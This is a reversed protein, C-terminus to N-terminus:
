RTYVFTHKWESFTVLNNTTLSKQVDIFRQNSSGKFPLDLNREQLIFRGDVLVDLQSLFAKQEPSGTSILEEWTFGTYSALEYKLPRLKKALVAFAAAQFFPDGGTFTIGKILPNTKIDAIIEDISLDSGVGFKHTQPNHCGKCNHSCGQAFIAYRIGPGDVVSDHVLGAINIKPNEINSIM